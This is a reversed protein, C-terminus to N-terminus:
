VAKYESRYSQLPTHDVISNTITTSATVARKMNGKLTWNNYDVAAEVDRERGRLNESVRDKM